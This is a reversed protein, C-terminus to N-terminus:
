IYSDPELLPHSLNRRTYIGVRERMLVINCRSLLDNQKLLTGVQAAGFAYLSLEAQSNGMMVCIDDQHINVM